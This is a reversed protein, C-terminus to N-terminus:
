RVAVLVRDDFNQWVTDVETFGAELLATWHAALDPVVKGGHGHARHAFRRDREAFDLVEGGDRRMREWWGAWDEVGAAAFVATRRRDKLHRGLSTLTSLGSGYALHDGNLLLGGPRLLDALQRYLATLEPGTLWHLATTSLVADVSSLQAAEVWEPSRLDADVWRLRGGADGLTHQGISMLVPDLDVAVARAQPFRDLLRQSLSGPGAALDVALFEGTLAAELVDLMATFRDERLTYGSQQRDWSDLWDRWPPERDAAVASM